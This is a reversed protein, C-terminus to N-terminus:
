LSAPPSSPAAKLLTGCLISHAHLMSCLCYVGTVPALVGNQMCACHLYRILAASVHFDDTSGTRGFPPCM